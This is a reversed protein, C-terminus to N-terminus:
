PSELANLSPSAVDPSVKNSNSQISSFSTSTVHEVIFYERLIQRCVFSFIHTVPTLIGSEALTLIKFQRFVFDCRQDSCQSTQNLLSTYVFGFVFVCACARARVCVCVRARARACVCLPMM